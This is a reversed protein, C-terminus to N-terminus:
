TAWRATHGSPTTSSAGTSSSAAHMPWRSSGTSTSASTASAGTSARSTRPEGRTISFSACWGYRLPSVKRKVVSADGEDIVTATVDVYPTLRYRYEVAWALGKPSHFNNVISEGGMATVQNRESYTFGYEAPPVVPGRGSSPDFQYGFGFQYTQTTISSATYTYNYRLQFVWPYHFYWTAAASGMVGWGHADTSNEQGETETTDYYRYPGVGASLTLRRDSTLWRYWLQVSHGDRHHNTVHGENLWTFSAVLHENVNYLYEFSYSYTNEDLSQTHQGGWLAYLEQASMPGSLALLALAATLRALPALM